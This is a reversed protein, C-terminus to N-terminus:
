RREFKRPLDTAQSTQRDRSYKSLRIFRFSQRPQDIFDGSKVIGSAEQLRERVRDPKPEQVEQAAIGLDADAMEMFRQVKRLWRDRAVQGIQALMAQHDTPFFPEPDMILPGSRLIRQVSGQDVAEAGAQAVRGDELLVPQPQGARHSAATFRSENKKSM